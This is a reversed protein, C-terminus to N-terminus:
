FNVGVCKQEKDEVFSLLLNGVPYNKARVEIAVMPYKYRSMSNGATSVTSISVLRPAQFEGLFKVAKLGFVSENSSAMCVLRNGTKEDNKQYAEIVQYANELLIEAGAPVSPQTTIPQSTTTCGLCSTVLLTPLIKKM